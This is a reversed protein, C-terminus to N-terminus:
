ENEAVSPPPYTRPATGAVRPSYARVAADFLHRRFRTGAIPLGRLHLRVPELGPRFDAEDDFDQPTLERLEGSAITVYRKDVELWLVDNWPVVESDDGIGTEDVRLAVERKILMIGTGVAGIGFLLVGPVMFWPERYLGMSGLTLATCGFFMAGM